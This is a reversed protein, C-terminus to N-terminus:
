LLRLLMDLEVVLQDWRGQLGCPTFPANEWFEGLGARRKRYFLRLMELGKEEAADGSLAELKEVILKMTKFEKDKNAWTEVPHVKHFAATLIKSLSKEDNM